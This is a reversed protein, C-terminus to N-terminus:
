RSSGENGRNGEIAYAVAQELSMEAGEAWLQEFVRNGLHERTSTVLREHEGILLPSFQRFDEGIHADVAALLRAAKDKRGTSGALSAFRDLTVVIPIDNGMKEFSLLSQSLLGSAREFDGQRRAIEGLDRMTGAVCNEDGIKQLAELAERSLQEAQELDNRQMALQALGRLAHAAMVKDEVLSCKELSQEYAWRAGQFDGHNYMSVGLLYLSHASNWIDGIEELRRLGDKQLKISREYDGQMEAVQGLYRLSFAVGSENELMSFLEISESLLAAAGDMSKFDWTKAQGLLNLCWAVGEKDDKERCIVLAEEVLETTGALNGRIIELGGARYIAKVRLMPDSGTGLDLSQTLWIWSEKWYGRMFWFWGLASVLRFALDADAKDISRRLAVRLNDHENELVEICEIQREDRLGQDVQEALKVFYNAHRQRVEEVEGGEALKNIGYQRVTELLGYRVAHEGEEVLVLSKDVLQSLQDLVEVKVEKEFKAVKEAAELTWGGSFVALQRLLAREPESLLSYSWDMMAELTQHRPLATRSGSTLLQFRDQLREAIQEPAIVKVRSAALEIALPIGDLQRCIQALAGGNEPTLGFDHQAAAAREVFLRIAEYTGLHEVPTEDPPLELPSVHLITEGPIRLDERSTVLLKV